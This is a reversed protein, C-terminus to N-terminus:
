FIKGCKLCKVCKHRLMYYVLGIVIGLLCCIIQIWVKYAKEKPATDGCRPCPYTPAAQQIQAQTHTESSQQIIKTAQTQNNSTRVITNGCYPCSNADEPLKQGCKSCFMEKFEGM